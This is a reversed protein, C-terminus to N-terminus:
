ARRLWTRPHRRGHVVGVVTVVSPYVKYYVAYPYGVLLVRRLLGRVVLHQEPASALQFLAHDLADLFGEAASPSRKRYWDFATEIEQRALARVRLPRVIPAQPALHPPYGGM